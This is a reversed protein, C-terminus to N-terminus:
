RGHNPHYELVIEAGRRAAIAEEKTDYAGLSKSKGSGVGITAEWRGLDQRWAVGVRGSTNQKPTKRNRSNQWNTVLRLNEIRNDAPNGNIHDIEGLAEEGHCMLWVIRHARVGHGDILIRIYGKADVCGAPKGAFRAHFTRWGKLTRFHHEPRNKWTLLGNEPNYDFLAEACEKTIAM